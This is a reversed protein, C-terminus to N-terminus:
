AGAATKEKVDVTRLSFVAGKWSAMTSSLAKLALKQAETLDSANFQNLKDAVAIVNLVADYINNNASMDSAVCWSPVM